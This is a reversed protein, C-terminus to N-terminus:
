ERWRVVSVGRLAWAVGAADVWVDDLDASSGIPAVVRWARGDFRMTLGNKGVAWVDDRARGGIATLLEGARVDDPSPVEDLERGNWHLGMVLGGAVGSGTFWVDDTASGWIKNCKLLPVDNPSVDSWTSGDFHMTSQFGCTWVDNAGVGWVRDSNRVGKDLTWANSGGRVIAAGIALFVNGRAASWGDDISTGTPPAAVRSWRQGDWHVLVKADPVYGAAWVDDVATGWVHNLTADTGSAVAACAAGDCRVITGRQGVAWVDNPGSGWVAALPANAPADIPQWGKAACGLASPALALTLM